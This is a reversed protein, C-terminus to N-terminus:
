GKRANLAKEAEEYDDFHHKTHGIIQYDEHGKGAIIIADGPKAHNVAYQIAERRNLIVTAQDPDIGALMDDMIKQPDETRPNDETLIAHTSHDVAIKAMQPRKQADRDGGCGVICYTDQKAFDNLTELVNLLGDPTHAYDVIVSVGTDSPVLQFRGKVGKAQILSSVIEDLDAGAAYAAGVAALANYVNFKGILNTKVHRTQNFVHLDFETGHISINIHDAFIDAPHEIGYTLINSTTYDIFERGVPDDINMVATKGTFTSGMQAFLLSKALKYQSMTKHYALHDETFNTFVCIDYNIGWVRGQVLAISSVEMSVTKVNHDRMDALTKQNTLVDPTTNTTPFIQDNVKRYLTGILGTGEGMKDFVEEILHTVTTKGNTGTVGIMKMSKSPSGYFKDALFAMARHTDKVYVVPVNTEVPEQAVIMKAGAEVAQPVFQHGDVNAGVIAIFIAGPVVERTDQTVTTVEFDHFQENSLHKYKIAQILDSALM